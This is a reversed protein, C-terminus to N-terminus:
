NDTKQKKNPLMPVKFGAADKKVLPQATGAGGIQTFTGGNFWRDNAEVKRKRANPDVLEIGQVPTFAISSTGTHGPLATGLGAVKLGRAALVSAQDGFSELNTTSGETAGGWGPNKKSLKARTRVDIQTARLRGTDSAGIMGMGKVSDGYGVEKEEKGFAMRNAAKSMETQATAEKAKRARRGGRKRSPKDDPAPLARVGKQGPPEAIKDLQADIQARMALGQAGDKHAHVRDIRAALIVKAAVIRMAQKKHEDRVNEVTPSHYLFGQNRIGVNTAFGLGSAKNNGMAPVNCAPKESLSILGNSYNILQAATLSGVLATLNPAFKEMRTQTFETILRRHNDFAIMNHCAAVIKAMEDDSLPETNIRSAEVTVVMVTPASIIRNLPVGLDNDTKAAITKIDDLPGNKIIAVTKAYDVPNKVLDDLYPFRATYHDRIFKHVAAQESDMSESLNNAKLLLQYERTEEINENDELPEVTDIIQRIEDMVPKLNALLKSASHISAVQQDGQKSADSPSKSDDDDDGNAFDAELDAM